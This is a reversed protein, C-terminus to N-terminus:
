GMVMWAALWLWMGALTLYGAAFLPSRYRLDNSSVHVAAHAYRLAVFLWALGVAVINDAETVYLLICCAYFLVPLEFQNALCNKVALSEAPEDRNERYDSKAIKGARVMKARRAGLLAYLGYVLAVHALLPWFIEYGTM